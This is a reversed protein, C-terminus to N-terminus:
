AKWVSQEWKETAEPSCDLIATVKYATMAPIAHTIRCGKTPGNAALGLVGKTDTDWYVCMRAKEITIQAPSKSDDTVYGFFVGRNETTVVVPKNKM